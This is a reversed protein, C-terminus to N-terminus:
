KFMDDYDTRLYRNTAFLSAAMCIIMGAALMGAFVWVMKDWGITLAVADFRFAYYLMGALLVMAIIAAVIGHLVNSVIFPRRIFGGTAGVLKMTHIIFRRSYVTLRVTNNILVFSILMLAVAVVVLIMSLSRLNHNVADVLEAHVTVEDVDASAGISEAIARISDSSAYAAKVKVEFEPAFPNVGLLETLDEGTEEQWMRRADDPSFYRFESVYPASALMRKYSNVTNDGADEKLTIDFGMNEKISDSVTRAAIGLSAVIGLLLLVLAVSITSTIQASFTSIGKRRKMRCFYYM